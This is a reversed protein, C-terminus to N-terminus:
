LSKLFRNMNSSTLLNIRLIRRSDYLNPMFQYFFPHNNEKKPGGLPVIKFDIQLFVFTYLENVIKQKEEKFNTM